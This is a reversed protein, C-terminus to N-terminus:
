QADPARRPRLTLYSALDSYDDTWASSNPRHRPPQWRPDDALPGLDAEREAMVAWISPQKGARRKEPSVDLDYRVRCVLGADRAQRDVLPDLDLYRNSLNFVLLGGPALKRQYLALAERTLLHVPVADSSFADLIVLTQGRDPAQDLRLRADGELIRMDAGRRRADALYTFYRPDEAIRAVAPDIEYFTWSEGAGAYTALTGTGLGVVAVRSGRGLRPEVAQFLDGIPGSRAFYTSPEDRLSPELSQQGHMTSGHILRHVRADPDYLVRLAGFFDRSRLIVEGGPDPALGGALGVAALTLAFRLPRSRARWVALAGLGAALTLGLAGVASDGVGPVTTLIWMLGFVVAPVAAAGLIRGLKATWDSERPGLYVILSTLVLALPYEVMRDFLLPAVIANFFSGLAGGFGIALYFLTLDRVKPRSEELRLHCLLAGAFFASAHLPAWFLHTFGASLVLMLASALWPFVRELPRKWWAGAGSFALIYTTLYIGLPIIWLLPMSALDTTAHTTVALLWSSPVAALLAWYLLARPSARGRPEAIPELPRSGGSSRSFVWVGAALTLCISVRFGIAWARNQGGLPFSPEIWLPYAVLAALNGASSASYLFFPDRASRSESMAFWRQLLPSTSAILVAPAGASAVLAGFLRPGPGFEGFDATLREVPFVFPLALLAAASLLGHVVLQARFGLRSTLLHAYAYGVLLMGQFFWLCANWVGPTGGFYPLLMKGIMPQAAFYLSSAVFTSVGFLWGIGMTRMAARTESALHFGM